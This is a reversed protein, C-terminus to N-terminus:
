ETAILRIGDEDFHHNSVVDAQVHFQPPHPRWPPLLRRRPTV